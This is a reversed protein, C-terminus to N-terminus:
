NKVIKDIWDFVMQEFLGTAGAECHAGAGDSAQFVIIDKKYNLAEYLTNGRNAVTDTPNDCVLTPCTITSVKDKFTYRSIENLFDYVSSVGHVRMRSLFFFRMSPNKEFIGGFFDNVGSAYNTKWMKLVEPPLKEQLVGAIDMQGPDCVLAALRKEGCAGRPALYGGFSRGMLIVKDKDVEHQEFLWDLVPSLVNEFDHRMYLRQRILAHGQGPGDFTM